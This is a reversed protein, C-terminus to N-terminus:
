LGFLGSTVMVQFIIFCRCCTLFSGANLQLAPVFLRHPADRSELQLSEFLDALNSGLMVYAVELLPCASSGPAAELLCYPEKMAFKILQHDLM